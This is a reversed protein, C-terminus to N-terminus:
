ALLMWLAMATIAHLAVPDAAAAGPSAMSARLDAYSMEIVRSPFGAM